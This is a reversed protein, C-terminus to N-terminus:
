SKIYSKIIKVLILRICIKKTLQFTANCTQYASDRYEGTIQFYDRVRIDKRSYLENFIHCKNGKRFHRKNEISMILKKLFHNKMVKNCREVEELVKEIFSYVSIKGWYTQVPKSFREDSYLINCGYSCAIHKKKTINILIPNTLKM